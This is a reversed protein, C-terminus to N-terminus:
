QGIDSQSALQNFVRKREKKTVSIGRKGRISTQPEISSKECLAELISDEKIPMNRLKTNRKTLTSNLLTRLMTLHDATALLQHVRAEANKQSHAIRYKNRRLEDHKRCANQGAIRKGQFTM